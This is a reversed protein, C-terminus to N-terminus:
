KAGNTMIKTSVRAAIRAVVPRPLSGDLVSPLLEAINDGKAYILQVAIELCAEHDAPCVRTLEPHPKVFVVLRLRAREESSRM